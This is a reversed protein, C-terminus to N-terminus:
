LGHTNEKPAQSGPRASGRGGSPIAREWGQRGKGPSPCRPLGAEGQTEAEQTNFSCTGVAKQTSPGPVQAQGDM